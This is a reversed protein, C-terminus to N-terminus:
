KYLTKDFSSILGCHFGDLCLFLLGVIETIRMFVQIVCYKLNKKKGEVHAQATFLCILLRAVSNNMSFLIDM